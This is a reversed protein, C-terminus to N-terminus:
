FCLRLIREKIKELSDCKIVSTSKSMEEENKWKCKSTRKGNCQGTLKCICFLFVLGGWIGYFYFSFELQKKSIRFFQLM